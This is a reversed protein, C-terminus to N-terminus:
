TTVRMERAHRSIEKEMYGRITASRKSLPVLRAFAEWLEPPFKFAKLIYKEGLPKGTGKPRGRQVM